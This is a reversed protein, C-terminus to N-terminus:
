EERTQLSEETHEANNDAEEFNEQERAEAFMDEEVDMWQFNLACNKRLNPMLGLVRGILGVKGIKEQENIPQILKDLASLTMACNSQEQETMEPKVPEIYTYQCYMNINGVDYALDFLSNVLSDMNNKHRSHAISLLSENALDFASECYSSASSTSVLLIVALLISIQM